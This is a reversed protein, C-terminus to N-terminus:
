TVLGVPCILQWRQVPKKQPQPAVSRWHGLSDQAMRLM